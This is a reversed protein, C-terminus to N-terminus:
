LCVEFSSCDRHDCPGQELLRSSHFLKDGGKSFRKPALSLGIEGVFTKNKNQILWGLNHDDLPDLRKSLVRKTTQLDTPIGITNFQAVEPFSHLSFVWSLHEECVSILCLDKSLLPAPFTMQPTKNIQVGM